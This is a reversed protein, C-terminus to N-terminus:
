EHNSFHIEFIINRPDNMPTASATIVDGKKYPVPLSDIPKLNLFLKYTKVNHVEVHSIRGPPYNLKWTYFGTSFHVTGDRSIKSIKDNIAFYFTQVEDAKTSQIHKDLYKKAHLSLVHEGFRSLM